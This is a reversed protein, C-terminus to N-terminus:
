LPLAHYASSSLLKMHICWRIMMSHWKVQTPKKAKAAQLQQDWFLHWFTGKGLDKQVKTTNDEMKILQTHLDGEVSVGSNNISEDIKKQLRALKREAAITRARLLSYQKRREPTRLHGFPTHSSTSTCKSPSLLRGKKWRNYM